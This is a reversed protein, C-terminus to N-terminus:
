NSVTRYFAPFALTPDADEFTAQGQQDMTIDGVSNWNPPSITASRQVSYTHTATGSVTFRPRRNPLLDVGTFNASAITNTNAPMVVYKAIFVDFAGGFTLSTENPEGKGFIATQGFRGAVHVAGATGIAQHHRHQRAVLQPAPLGLPQRRHIRARAVAAQHLRQLLMLRQDADAGGAIIQQLQQSDDAVLLEADLASDDM